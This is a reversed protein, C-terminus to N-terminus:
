GKAGLILDVTTDPSILTPRSARLQSSLPAPLLSASLFMRPNKKSTLIDAMVTQNGLPWLEKIHANSLKELFDMNKCVLAPHPIPLRTSVGSSFSSPMLSVLYHFTPPSPLPYEDSLSLQTPM